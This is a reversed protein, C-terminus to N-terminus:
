QDHFTRGIEEAARRLRPLHELQCELPMRSVPAHIALAACPQGLANKVPVAVCALGFHFEEDDVSYRQARIRELERALKGRDTITSDTHRALHLSALLQMRKAKPLMALLLKGSATCHIPVRSGVQLNMRLPALTEVRDLYVVDAGELVTFNCTEGLEDVLAQMIAHRAGRTTSCILVQVALQTLRAGPSFRKAEPLRQVLRASELQSLLRHVTPKPLELATVRDVLSLCPPDAVLAELLAFARHIASGHLRKADM